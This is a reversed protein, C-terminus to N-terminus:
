KIPITINDRQSRQQEDLLIALPATYISLPTSGPNKAITATPDISTGPSQGYGPGIFVASSDQIEFHLHAPYRSGATGVTGIQHGRGILEGHATLLQHLHAYMSLKIQGNNMRHALVLTKGWGPAPTGRYVVLGNAIAYVPDGLDTNMGGIGNIDDGTHHGGRAPNDQWFAQANYTLAGHESGMPHSMQQVHPIQAREFASLQIFRPDFVAARDKLPFGLPAHAQQPSNMSKVPVEYLTHDKFFARAVMIATFLFVAAIGLKIYTHKM